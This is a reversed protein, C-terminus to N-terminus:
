RGAAKQVSDPVPMLVYPNYTNTKQVTLDLVAQGDITHTTRAPTYVDSKYDSENLDAYGSYTVVHLRNQWRVETRVPRYLSDLTVKVPTGELQGVVLNTTVMPKGVTFPFTLM